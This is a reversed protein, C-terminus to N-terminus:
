YGSHLCGNEEGLQSGTLRSKLTPLLDVGGAEDKRGAARDGEGHM